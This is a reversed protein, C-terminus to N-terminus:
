TYLMWALGKSRLQSAFLRRGGPRPRNTGAREIKKQRASTKCRTKSFKGCGAQARTTVAPAKAPSLCLAKSAACFACCGSRIPPLCTSSRHIPRAGGLSPAQRLPSGSGLSPAGRRAVVTPSDAGRGEECTEAKFSHCCWALLLSAYM